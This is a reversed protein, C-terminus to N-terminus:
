CAREQVSNKVTNVSKQFRGLGQLRRSLFEWTEPYVGEDDPTDSIWYLVTASYITGLLARKSYYNWDTATDGAAYWMDNVTRMTAQAALPLNLPMALWSLTKRVTEMNKANIMIRTKVANEIRATMGMADWDDRDYLETLRKLMTADSWQGWLDIVDSVGSPFARLAMAADYGLEVAGANIADRSWGDFPVNGLTALMIKERIQDMDSSDPM